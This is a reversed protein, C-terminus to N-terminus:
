MKMTSRGAFFLKKFSTLFMTYRFLVAASLIKYKKKKKKEIKEPFLAQCKVCIEEEPSM